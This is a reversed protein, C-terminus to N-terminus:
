FFDYFLVSPIVYEQVLMPFHWTPTKEKKNKKNDDLRKYHNYVAVALARKARDQGIVYEDLAAKIEAPKLLKAEGDTLTEDDLCNDFEEDLYDDHLIDCCLDICEDCIFVGPGAILRKVQGERKGCFSCRVQKDEIKSM